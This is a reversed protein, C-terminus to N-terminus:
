LSRIAKLLALTKSKSALRIEDSTLSTYCNKYGGTQLIEVGDVLLRAYVPRDPDDRFAIVKFKTGRPMIGGTGSFYPKYAYARNCVGQTLEIVDGVKYM